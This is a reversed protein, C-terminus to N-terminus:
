LRSALSYGQAGAGIAETVTQLTSKQQAVMQSYNNLNEIHKAESAYKANTLQIQVDKMKAEAQQQLSDASLAAKMQVMGQQRAAANGYAMTDARKAVAQAEAANKQFLLNTLAMGIQNNVDDGVQQLQNYAMSTDREIFAKNGEYNSKAAKRIAANSEMNGMISLGAMIGAAAIQAAM